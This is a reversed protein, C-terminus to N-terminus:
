KGSLARAYVSQRWVAAMPMAPWKRLLVVLKDPSQISQSLTVFVMNKVSLFPAQSAAWFEQKVFM